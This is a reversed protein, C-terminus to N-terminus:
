YVDFIYIIDLFEIFANSLYLNCRAHIPQLPPVASPRLRAEIRHEDWEGLPNKKPRRRSARSARSARARSTKPRTSNLQRMRSAPAAITHALVEWIVGM